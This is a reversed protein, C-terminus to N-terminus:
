DIEKWDISCFSRCNMFSSCDSGATSVTTPKVPPPECPPAWVLLAKTKMDSLGLLSRLAEASSTM